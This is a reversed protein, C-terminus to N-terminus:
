PRLADSMKDELSGPDNLNIVGSSCCCLLMFMFVALLLCLAGVLLDGAEDRAAQPEPPVKPAAERSRAKPTVEELQHDLWYRGLAAPPYHYRRHHHRSFPVAATM